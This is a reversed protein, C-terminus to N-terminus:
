ITRATRAQLDAWQVVDARRYRVATGFRLHPPGGGKIRKKRLWATSMCLYQATQHENWYCDETEGDIVAM